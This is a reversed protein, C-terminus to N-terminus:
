EEHKHFLEFEHKKSNMQKHELFHPHSFMKVHGIQVSLIFMIVSFSFFTTLLIMIVKNIKYEQNTIKCTVFNFLEFMTYVLVINFILKALLSVWIWIEMNPNTNHSFKDIQHNFSEMVVHTMDFVVLFSQVLCFIFVLFLPLLVFLTWRINQIQWLQKYDLQPTTKLKENKLEIKAVKQPNGIIKCIYDYNKFELTLIEEEYYKVIQEDSIIQKFEEIWRNVM